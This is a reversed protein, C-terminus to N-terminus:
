VPLFPNLVRVSGYTQGHSLDESYLVPASLREAAALTAAHWYGVRFARSMAVAARVITEDMPAVPYCCLLDIWRDVEELPLPVAPRRIVTTYFEALVQASVGFRETRIIRQAIAFKHPEDERGAAAYILINTDLFCESRM